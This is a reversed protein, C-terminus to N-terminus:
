SFQPPALDGATLNAAPVHLHTQGLILLFADVMLHKKRGM